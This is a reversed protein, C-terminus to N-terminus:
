LKVKITVNGAGDDVVSEIAGLEGARETLAAVTAAGIADDLEARVDALAAELRATVAQRLEDAHDAVKDDLIERARERLKAKGADIGGAYTRGKVTVSESVDADDALRVTVTAAELDVIVEIGDDRRRTALTGDRVFGKAELERALLDAMREPALIPLMELPACVGDDVHVTRVVSASVQIQIARSV